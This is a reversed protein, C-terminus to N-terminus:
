IDWCPKKGASIDLIELSRIQCRQLAGAGITNDKTHVYTWKLNNGTTEFM